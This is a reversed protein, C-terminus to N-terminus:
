DMAGCLISLPLTESSAMSCRTTAPCDKKNSGNGQIPQRFEGTRRKLAELVHRHEAPPFFSPSGSLIARLLLAIRLPLHRSTPWSQGPLLPLCIRPLWPLGPQLSSPPRSFLIQVQRVPRFYGHPVGANHAEAMFDIKLGRCFVKRIVDDGAIHFWGYDLIHASVSNILFATYSNLAFSIGPTRASPPIHRESWPTM